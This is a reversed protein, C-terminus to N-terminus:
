QTRIFNLKRKRPSEIAEEIIRAIVWLERALQKDIKLIKGNETEEERSSKGIM